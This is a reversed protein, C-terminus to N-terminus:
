TLPVEVGQAAEDADPDLVLMANVLKVKEGLM